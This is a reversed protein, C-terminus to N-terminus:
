SRFLGDLYHALLLKETLFTVERGDSLRFILMFINYQQTSCTLKFDPMFFTNEFAFEPAIGYRCRHCTGKKLFSSSSRLLTPNVWPLLFFFDSPIKVNKLSQNKYCYYEHVLVRRRDTARSASLSVFVLPFFLLCCAPEKINGIEFCESWVNYDSFGTGTILITDPLSYRIEVISCSYFYLKVQLSIIEM